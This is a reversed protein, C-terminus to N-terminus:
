NKENLNKCNETYYAFSGLLALLFLITEAVVCGTLTSNLLQSRKLDAMTKQRFKSMFERIIMQTKTHNSLCQLFEIKITHMNVQKLDFNKEVCKNGEFYLQNLHSSFINSSITSIKNNALIIMKLKKCNALNVYIIELNNGSIDIEELNELKEFLKRPLYQIENKRLFIGKLNPMKSLASEHIAKIKNSPLSLYELKSTEIFSFDLGGFFTANQIWIKTLNTVNKFTEKTLNFYGEINEAYLFDLEPYNLFLDKPQASLSSEKIIVMLNMFKKKNCDNTLSSKETIKRGKVECICFLEESGQLEPLTAKINYSREDKKCKLEEATTGFVILLLIEFIYILIKM